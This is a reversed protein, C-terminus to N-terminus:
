SRDGKPLSFLLSGDDPASLFAEIGQVLKELTMPNGQHQGCWDTPIVPPFARDIMGRPLIALRPARIRCEGADVYGAAYFHLCDGCTPRYPVSESM